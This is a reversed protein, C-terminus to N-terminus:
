VITKMKGLKYKAIIFKYLQLKESKKKQRSSHISSTISAVISMVALIGSIAGCITGIFSIMNYQYYRETLVSTDSLLLQVTLGFSSALPVSLIDKQSGRVPGTQSEVRYGVGSSSSVYGSFKYYAPIVFYTIVTPTPGRFVHDDDSSINRGYVSMQGPMSSNASIYASIFSTFGLFSLSITSGSEFLSDLYLVTQVHCYLSDRHSSYQETTLSHNFSTTMTINDATCRNYAFLYFDLTLSTNAFSYEQSFTSSPVASVSERMNDYVSILVFLTIVILVSLVALGTYFGYILSVKVERYNEPLTGQKEVEFEKQEENFDMVKVQEVPEYEGKNQDSPKNKQIFEYVSLFFRVHPSCFFMLVFLIVLTAFLCGIVIYQVTMSEGGFVAPQTLQPLESFDFVYPASSGVPCTWNTPCHSCSAAGTHNNYYGTPCVTCQALDTAGVTASFTGVPCPSCATDQARSYTGAPCFGCMSTSSNYVFGAGCFTSDGAGVVYLGTMTDSYLSFGNDHYGGFLVVGSNYGVFASASIRKDISGLYKESYSPSLSLEWVDQFGINPFLSGGVILLKGSYFLSAFNGRCILTTTSTSLKTLTVSTDSTLDFRNIGCYPDGNTNKIGFFTFIATKTGVKQLSCSHGYIPIDDDKAVYIKTFKNVTMDYMWVDLNVGLESEGGIFYFKPLDMVLCTRVVATPVASDSEPEIQTWSSTIANFLWFDSLYELSSDVGGTVMLFNGQSAAAHWYRGTPSNGSTAVQHWPQNGQVGWQMNFTWLDSFLEGKDVGGFLYVNNSSQVLTGFARPSPHVAKPIYHLITRAALDVKLFSNTPGATTEGAYIYALNNSCSFSFAARACETESTCNLSFKNWGQSVTALDLVYVNSNYSVSGNTITKGFFYYIANQYVCSGGHFFPLLSATSLFIWSSSSYICLGPNFSVSANSQYLGGYLYLSNSIISLSLGLLPTNTCSSYDPLV